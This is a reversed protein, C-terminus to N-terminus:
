HPYARSSTSRTEGPCITAGSCRSFSRPGFGREEWARLHAQFLPTQHTQLAQKAVKDAWQNFWAHVRAPGDCSEWKQHGPIWHIDAHTVDVQELQQVFMTWLDTNTRPLHIPHGHQHARLLARGRRVVGLCDSFVLPRSHAAFATVVAFLEARYPTQHSGPLPGSLITGLGGDPLAQVVAFSAVRCQPTKPHLCSGDTYLVVQTSDLTRSPFSPVRSDLEAQWPRLSSLEEWIGYARTHSPITAWAAELKPYAARLRRTHPCDDARHLRGDLQGCLPCHCAEPAFHKVHEGSFFAGIRQITLLGRESPLLHSSSLTASVDICHLDELYKRHCVQSCVKQSWSSLLLAEIHDLSTLVLHFSRGPEDVFTGQGLHEWGLDALLGVLLQTPGKYRGGPDLRDRFLANFDPLERTVQRLEKITWSDTGRMTGSDASRAVLEDIDQDSPAEERLWYQEWQRHRCPPYAALVPTAQRTLEM